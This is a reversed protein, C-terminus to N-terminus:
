DSAPQKLLEYDTKPQQYPKACSSVRISDEDDLWKVRVCVYIRWIDLYGLIRVGM